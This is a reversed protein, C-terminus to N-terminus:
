IIGKKAGSAPLGYGQPKAIDAISPGGPATLKPQGVKRAATLGTKPSAPTTPMLSAAQKKRVVPAELTSDDGALGSALIWPGYSLPGSFQSTVFDGPAYSVYADSGKEKMPVPGKGLSKGDKDVEILADGELKLRAATKGQGQEYEQMFQRLTAMEAARDMHYRLLPAVGGMVAGAAASGLGSRLRGFRVPKGGVEVPKFPLQGRVVDGIASAAPGAIAGLAGYRLAQGITPKSAELQQVREYSARAQEPTIAGLKELEDITARLNM